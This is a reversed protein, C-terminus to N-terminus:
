RCNDRGRPSRRARSAAAPEAPPDPEDRAGRRRRDRIRGLAGGLGVARLVTDLRLLWRSPVTPVGESRTARTLAVEPAGIAQAFDHAAIGIAREPLAIGFEPADAAVDM